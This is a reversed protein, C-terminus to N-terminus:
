SELGGNGQSKDTHTHTHTHLFQFSIAFKFDISGLFDLNPPWFYFKGISSSTPEM